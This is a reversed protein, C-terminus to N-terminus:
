GPPLAAAAAADRADFWYWNWSSRADSTLAGTGLERSRRRGSAFPDGLVIEVRRSRRSRRRLHHLEQALADLVHDVDDLLVAGEILDQAVQGVARIAVRRQGLEALRERRVIVAQRVSNTVSSLKMFGPSPLM